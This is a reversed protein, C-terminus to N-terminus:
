LGISLGVKFYLDNDLNYDLVSNDGGLFEFKRYFTYGTNLKLKLYKMLKQNLSFGGGLNMISVNDIKENTYLLDKTLTFNDGAMFLDAGFITKPSLEYKIGFRPFGVDVQWKTAPKWMMSFVPLPLPIGSTASYMVGLSLRLNPKIPKTFMVFGRLTVDEWDLSSKFNSSIQPTLMTILSWNNKIARNYGLTYSVTHFSDLDKLIALNSSYGLRTQAYEFKNILFSKNNKLRKPITISLSYKQFKVSNKSSGDGLRLYDVGVLERDFQAFTPIGICFLFIFLLNKKSM